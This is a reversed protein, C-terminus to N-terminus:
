ENSMQSRTLNKMLVVDTSIAGRALALRRKDRSWAFSFIQGDAFNTLQQPATGDLDQRWINAVGGRADIYSLARGDPTWRFTQFYANPIQDFIKIPAGGEFPIVAVQWPSSAEARYVCAILKGDPSVIPKTTPQQTVPVPAGGDAPIKWLTNRNAGIAAYLIWRGDPTWTQWLEGSGRTLQTLNRGDIDMRWIHVADEKSSAFLIYRGDPSVAPSSESNENLERQRSGDAEMIWIRPKGSATSGYVIQGQPTWDLGYYGDYKGSTLQKSQNAEQDQATTTTWVNSHQAVQVTILATSDATLSLGQYDNLDNTIRQSEGGPYSLQWLQRNGFRENIATMLLGRGDKRWALGAVEYWRQTSVYSEIRTEVDIKSIRLQHHDHMFSGASFVITRNDPSWALGGSIYLFNPYQHTILKQEATGDVNAVIMVDERQFPSRRIFALREGDPSFAVASDVDVAIKKSSGGLVPVQYLVGVTTNKERAVYYIYDGDQSFTLWRCEREELDAVQVSSDIAIQKVWLSRRGANNAIYVFYRGDPSIAAVNNKGTNTLRMVQMTQFPMPSKNGAVFRYLGFVIGAIGIVALALLAVQRHDKPTSIVQEANAQHAIPNTATLPASLAHGNSAETSGGAHEAFGEIALEGSDHPALVPSEAGGDLMAASSLCNEAAEDPTAAAIVKEVPAVFRYGRRPITEIYKRGAADTGLMKRLQSISVTLSGEEVFTDAWVKQLFEDKEVIQGSREVLLLLVEYAKAPLALPAGDRLLCRAVPDLRFSGFVYCAQVETSM